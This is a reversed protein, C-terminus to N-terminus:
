PSRHSVGTHAPEFIPNIGDRMPAPVVQALRSVNFKTVGSRRLHDLIQRLASLQYEFPPEFAPRAVALRYSPSALMALAEQEAKLKWRRLLRVPFRDEDKDIEQACNACLWLGNEPSKREEHTM